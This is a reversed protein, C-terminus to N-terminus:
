IRRIVFRKEALYSFGMLWLPALSFVLVPHKLEAYASVVTGTASLLFTMLTVCTKDTTVLEDRLKEYEARRNAALERNDSLVSM